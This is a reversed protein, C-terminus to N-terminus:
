RAKVRAWTNLAFMLASLWQLVASVTLAIAWLQAPRLAVLPEAIARAILGTNLTVYAMLALRESGRPSDPASRPFMWYAVGFITQTVWGVMFFHVYIPALADFAPRHPAALVVGILLALVLYVLASRLFWRTLTPM